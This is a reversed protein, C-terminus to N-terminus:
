RRNEKRTKTIKNVNEIHRFDPQMINRMKADGKQNKKYKSAFFSVRPSFGQHRKSYKCYASNKLLRFRTKNKAFFCRRFIRRRTLRYIKMKIKM